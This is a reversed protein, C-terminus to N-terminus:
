WVRGLLFGILLFFIIIGLVFLWDSGRLQEQDPELITGDLYSRGAPAPRTARAVSQAGANHTRRSPKSQPGTATVRQRRAAQTSKPVTSRAVSNSKKAPNSRAKTTHAVSSKASPAGKKSTKTTTTTPM